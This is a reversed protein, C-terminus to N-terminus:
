PTGSGSVSRGTAVIRAYVDRPLVGESVVRAAIQLEEAFLAELERLPRAGALPRGNFFFTPTGAVGAAQAVAVDEDIAPTHVAGDLAQVVPGPQLGLQAAYGELAARELAGQNAFLLDHMEWFGEDGRQARAELSLQAAPRAHAHFALPMHRFVMRLESAYRAQLTALTQAGRACFPCEFDSFVVVTVLADDPGKAPRGDLPVNWREADGVITRDLLVPAAEEVQPAEDGSSAEAAVSVPVRVDADPESRCALLVIPSAALLLTLRVAALYGAM